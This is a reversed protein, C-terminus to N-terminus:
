HRVDGKMQHIEAMLLKALLGVLKYSCNSLSIQGCAHILQIIVMTRCIALTYHCIYPSLVLIMAVILEQLKTLKTLLLEQTSFRLSLM